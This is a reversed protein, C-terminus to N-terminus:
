ASATARALSAAPGVEDCDQEGRAGARERRRGGAGERPLPRPGGDRRRGPGRQVRRHRRRTRRTRLRHLRDTAGRTTALGEAVREEPGDEAAGDGGARGEGPLGPGAQQARRQQEGGGEDQHGRRAPHVQPDVPQGVPEQTGGGDEDDGTRDEDPRPAGEADARPQPERQEDQREGPGAEPHTVDLELRDQPGPEPGGARPRGHLPEHAAEDDPADHGEREEHRPARTPARRDREAGRQQRAGHERPRARQRAARLAPLGPGTPSRGRERWPSARTRSPPSGPGRHM